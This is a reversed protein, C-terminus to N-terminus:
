RRKSAYGLHLRKQDNDEDVDWLLIADVALQECTLADQLLLALSGRIDLFKAMLFVLVFFILFPM